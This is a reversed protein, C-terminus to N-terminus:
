AMEEGAVLDGADYLDEAARVHKQATIYSTGLATGIQAFSWDEIHRLTWALLRRALLIRGNRAHGGSTLDEPKVGVHQAVSEAYAHAVDGNTSGAGPRRIPIRITLHTM